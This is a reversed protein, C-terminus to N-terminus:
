GRLRPLLTDPDRHRGTSREREITTQLGGYGLCGAAVESLIHAEWAAAHRLPLVAENGEPFQAFPLAKACVDALFHSIGQIWRLVPLLAQDNSGHSRAPAHRLVGLL